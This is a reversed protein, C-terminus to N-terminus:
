TVVRFRRYQTNIQRIIDPDCKWKRDYTLLGNIEQEVDTLQTYCFGALANSATVCGIVRRYEAIFQERNEANTYGWCAAGSQTRACNEETKKDAVYRDDIEGEEAGDSCDFAIGGFETLVIPASNERNGFGKAYVDWVGCPETLLTHRDTLMHGFDEQKKWEDASGHEYNHIACIDTETAEWGDNSIVPRTEDQAHIYHYMAQSFHQQAKDSHICPIGWSENHPVWCVISPHNFDRKIIDDWVSWLRKMQDAGFTPVSGCEGWVLYGLKDAWYLFRSDEAKQHKRCGNFGMRKGALIDKRLAEDSPATMLGDPWYGQDLVLRQYYPKNNLYIMHNEVHVKRFGFYSKVRDVVLGQTTELIMEVDYLNPNEPTWARGDDHFNTRFIHEQILDVTVQLKRAACRLSIEQVSEGQFSVCIRVNMDRYLESDGHLFICIDEKGEDFLSVFRIREIRRKPVIEAWVSQWVGSTPTYWIGRPEREWSQKGRPITEDAWPDYVRLCVKQMPLGLDIYSTVDIVFPTEGGEHSGAFYGNIYVRVEYDVAGFHLLIDKDEIDERIYFEREYWMIDHPTREGIGSLASQYAFPVCIYQSFVHEDYWKEEIGADLDDFDFKWQGNLCIYSERVFDPRPYEARINEM